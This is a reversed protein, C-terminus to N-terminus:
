HTGASCTDEGRYPKNVTSVHWGVFQAGELWNRGPKTRTPTSIRTSDGLQEAPQGQSEDLARSSRACKAQDLDVPGQGSFLM